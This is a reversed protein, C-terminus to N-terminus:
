LFWMKDLEEAAKLAQLFDRIILSLFGTNQM